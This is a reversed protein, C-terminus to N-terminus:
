YQSQLNFFAEDIKWTEIFTIEITARIVSHWCVTSALFHICLFLVLKGTREVIIVYDAASTTVSTNRVQERCTPTRM